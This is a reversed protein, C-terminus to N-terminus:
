RKLIGVIQGLQTWFQIEKAIAATKKGSWYAGLISLANAACEKLLWVPPIKGSGAPPADLAKDFRWKRVYALSVRNAPVKHHVQADPAYVMKKGAKFFRIAMETDEGYLRKNGVLGMDERFGGLERLTSKRFGMSAGYFFNMDMQDFVKIKDGHDLLAFVGGLSDQLAPDLIWAEPQKGWLPVIKGSACDAKYDQFLTYYAQIWGPQVIVDDDTFLIYEGASEQIGRNRAASIGQRSEFAHLIRFPSSLAEEEVVEQTRDSSNNNVIILEVQISSSFQQRKLSQITERLSECRNFTPIIISVDVPM